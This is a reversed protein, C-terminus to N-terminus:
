VYIHAHAFLSQHIHVDAKVEPFQISYQRMCDTCMDTSIVFMVGISGGVCVYMYM